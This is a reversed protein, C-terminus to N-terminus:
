HNMTQSLDDKAYNGISGYCQLIEPYEKATVYGKEEWFANLVGVLATGQGPFDHLDLLQFGAFGPTRFHRKLIQKIVFCRCNAQHMYFAIQLICCAM